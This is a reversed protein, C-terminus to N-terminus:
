SLLRTVNLYMLSFVWLIFSFFIVILLASVRVTYFSATSLFTSFPTPKVSVSWSDQPTRVNQNSCWWRNEETTSKNVTRWGVSAWFSMWIKNKCCCTRRGWSLRQEQRSFVSSAIRTALNLGVVLSLSGCVWVLASHWYKHLTSPRRWGDPTDRSSAWRIRSM